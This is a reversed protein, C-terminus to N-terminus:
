IMWAVAEKGNGGVPNETQEPTEHHLVRRMQAFDSAGKVGGVVGQAAEGIGVVTRSRERCAGSALGVRIGVVLDAVAEGVAAGVPRV